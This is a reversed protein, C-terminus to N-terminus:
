NLQGFVLQKQNANKYVSFIQDSKTSPSIYKRHTFTVMLVFINNINEHFKNNLSNSSIFNILVIVLLISNINLSRLTFVNVIVKLSLITLQM